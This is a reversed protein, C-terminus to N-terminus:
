IWLDQVLTLAIRNITLDYNVVSSDIIREQSEVVGHRIAFCTPRFKLLIDMLEGLLASKLMFDM